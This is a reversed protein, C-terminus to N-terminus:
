SNHAFTASYLAYFYPSSLAMSLITRLFNGPRPLMDIRLYSPASEVSVARVIRPDDRISALDNMWEMSCSRGVQHTGSLADSASPSIPIQHM